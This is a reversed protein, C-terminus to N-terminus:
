SLRVHELDRVADVDMTEPPPQRDDIGLLVGHGFCDGQHGAREFCRNLFAQMLWAQADCACPTLDIRATVAARGVIDRRM